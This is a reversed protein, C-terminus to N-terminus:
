HFEDQETHGQQSNGGRLIRTSLVVADSERPQPPVRLNLGTIESNGGAARRGPGHHDNASVQVDISVDIARGGGHEAVDDHVLTPANTTSRNGQASVDAVFTSRDEADDLIDASCM